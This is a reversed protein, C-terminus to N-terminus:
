NIMRYNDSIQKYIYRQRIDSDRKLDLDDMQIEITSNM